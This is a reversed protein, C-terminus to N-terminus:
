DVEESVIFSAKDIFTDVVGSPKTLQVDYKYEGFKLGITDEPDFTITM